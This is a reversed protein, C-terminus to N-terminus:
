WIKRNGKKNTTKEGTTKPKGSFEKNFLTQIKCGEKNHFFTLTLREATDLGKCGWPSYGVLSRIRPIRWALIGSHM